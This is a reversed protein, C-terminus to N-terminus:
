SGPYTLLAEEVLDSFRKQHQSTVFRVRDAFLSNNTQLEQGKEFYRTATSFTVRRAADPRDAWHHLSRLQDVSLGAGELYKLDLVLQETRNM